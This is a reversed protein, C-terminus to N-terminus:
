NKILKTHYFKDNTTFTVFYIGTANGGLDLQTKNNGTACAIQKSIVLAGNADYINLMGTTAASCSYNINVVGSTPNPVITFMGDDNTNNVTAITVQKIEGNEDTQSLRYYSIGPLPEYDITSYNHRVNSTGSGKVQTLYDFNKGDASREITFDKNNTESATAWNLDVQDKDLTATFNLISIGLVVPLTCGLVATGGMTFSFGESSPTFGNVYFLYTGAALTQTTNWSSAYTALAGTSNSCSGGCNSSNIGTVGPYSSYNCSIPAGLSTCNNGSYIAYDYDDVGDAATLTFTWTGGQIVNLVYWNSNIEQSLNCGYNTSNSLEQTGWLNAAGGYNGNSCILQGTACDTGAPNPVPNNIQISYTANVASCSSYNSIMVYYQLGPTIVYTHSGNLGNNFTNIAVCGNVYSNFACSSGQFIDIETNFGASAATIELDPGQATFTFWTNPCFTSGSPFNCQYANDSTACDFSFGSNWTGNLNGTPVNYANACADNSTANYLCYVPTATSTELGGNCTMVCQYYTSSSVSPGNYTAATQGAVNSWTTGNASSQWQYTQGACASTGTLTLDATYSGSCAGVSNQAVGAQCTISCFAPSSTASLGSATCTVICQYWTNQSVTAAYTAGTQGAINTYTIGDTSSQWQYTIGLCSNGQLSITSAYTVCGSIVSALAGGASPTGSCPPNYCIIVQGAAGVGGAFTSVFHSYAGGGGGGPATGAFGNAETCCYGNGGVGGGTAGGTGGVTTANSANGGVATTGAGGGGGGGGYITFSGSAGNGGAFLTTGVDGVTSGTTGAGNGNTGLGGGAGGVAVVSVGNFSSTGGTGGAAAAAATGGAGVVVNYNNGPVVIVAINQAFSGGAGGGGDSSASTANLGGGGGGGGWCQVTVSTVGAPCTWVTTGVTTITTCTPTCQAKVNNCFIIYSFFLLLYLFKNKM